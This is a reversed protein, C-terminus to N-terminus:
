NALRKPELGDVFDVSAGRKNGIPVQNSGTVLKENAKNMDADKLVIFTQELRDKFIPLALKYAEDFNAEKAEEAYRRLAEVYLM